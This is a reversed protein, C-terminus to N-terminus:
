NVSAPFTVKCEAASNRLYPLFFMFFNKMRRYTISERASYKSSMNCYIYVCCQRQVIIHLRSWIIKVSILTISKNIVILYLRFNRVVGLVAFWRCMIQSQTLLKALKTLSNSNSSNSYIVVDANRM